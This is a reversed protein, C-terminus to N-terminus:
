EAVAVIRFFLRSDSRHLRKAWSSHSQPLDSSFVAETKGIRFGAQRYSVALEKKIYDISIEPLGLRQWECRDREPHLGFTVQLRANLSCLSRLNRMVLDDGGAVGRLLSGWPYQVQVETAIGHLENPLNEIAAQVFLVNPM